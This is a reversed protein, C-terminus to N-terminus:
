KSLVEKYFNAIEKAVQAMTRPKEIGARWQQIPSPDASLKALADAWKPVDGAPLLQGDVGSHVLESIGGLDSGLVPTGAAFAELVVLPGTELLLSPVVVLDLRAMTPLVQEADLAPLFRIRPDNRAISLLYHSWGESGQQVVGYILLEIPASPNYKMAKIIVELGKTPDIRGFFGLRLPGCKRPDRQLPEIFMPHVLGQRCLRIREIPLGNALLLDAVWQCPAVVLDALSFFRYSRAIHDEVIQRMRFALWVGRRLGLQKLARGVSPPVQALALSLPGNLRHSRLVCSTCRSANLMGDCSNSGNYLMTGRMCTLTPTHYTVMTRAGSVHAAELLLESVAATRAHLHVIQPQVIALIKRFEGAAFNDPVGEAAAPDNGLGFKYLDLSEYLRHSSNLAPAAIASKYNLGQLEMSLGRVYQETGGMPDPSFTYPVHLITIKTEM